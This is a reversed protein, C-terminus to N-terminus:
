NHGINQIIAVVDVGWRDHGSLLEIVFAGDSFTLLYKPKYLPSKLLTLKGKYAEKIIELTRECEVINDGHIRLYKTYNRPMEENSSDDVLQPLLNAVDKSGLEDFFFFFFM